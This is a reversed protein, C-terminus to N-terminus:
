SSRRAGRDLLFAEIRGSDPNYGHGVIFRGNNSIASASRLVAAEPNNSVSRLIAERYVENLDFLRRQEDWLVAHQGGDAFTVWGIVVEGQGSIGLAAGSIARRPMALLAVAPTDDLTWEAPVQMRQPAQIWGIARAGSAAVSLCESWGGEAGQPLPLVAIGSRATWQFARQTRTDIQLAAGVIVRGDAAVSNAWSRDFGGPVGLDQIRRSVDWKAAHPVYRRAEGALPRESLVTTWGVAVQGDASVSTAGGELEPVPMERALGDATWVVPRTIWEADPRTRTHSWGVITRGDPSVDSASSEAGTVLAQLAQMGREPTWKYAQRKGAENLTMGVVVSGDDSVGYAYSESGGLTGLWTLRAEGSAGDVSAGLDANPQPKGDGSCGIAMGIALLYILLGCSMRLTM